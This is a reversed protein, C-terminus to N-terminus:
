LHMLAAIFLDSITEMERSKPLPPEESSVVAGLAHNTLEEALEYIDSEHKLIAKKLEHPVAIEGNKVALLVQDIPVVIGVDRAVLEALVATSNASREKSLDLRYGKDMAERISVIQKTSIAAADVNEHKIMFDTGNRNPVLLLTPVLVPTEIREFDISVIKLGRVTSFLVVQDCVRLLGHGDVGRSTLDITFGPDVIAETSWVTETGLRFVVMVVSDGPLDNPLTLEAWLQKILVPVSFKIYAPLFTEMSATDELLWRGEMNALGGGSPFTLAYHSAIRGGEPLGTLDLNAAKPLLYDKSVAATYNFTWLELPIARHVIDFDIELNGLYESPIVGSYELTSTNCNPGSLSDCM